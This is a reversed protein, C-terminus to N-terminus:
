KGVIMIQAMVSEILCRVPVAFRVLWGPLVPPLKERVNGFSVVEKWLLHTM